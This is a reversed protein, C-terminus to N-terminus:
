NLYSARTAFILFRSYFHKSRTRRLENLSQQVQEGMRLILKRRGERKPVNHAVNGISVLLNKLREEIKEMNREIREIQAKLQKESGTSKLFLDVLETEMMKKLEPMLNWFYPFRIVPMLKEAVIDGNLRELNPFHFTIWALHRENAILESLAYTGSTLTLESM